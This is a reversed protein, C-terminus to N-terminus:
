VVLGFRSWWDPLLQQEDRKVNSHTWKGGSLQGLNGKTMELKGFQRVKKKQRQFCHLVGFCVLCVSVCHFWTKSKLFFSGRHRISCARFFSKSQIHASLSSAEVSDVPSSFNRWPNAARKTRKWEDCAMPQVAAAPYPWGGGWGCVLLLLLRNGDGLLESVFLKSMWRITNRGLFFLHLLIENKYRCTGCSKGNRNSKKTACLWFDNVIQRMWFSLTKIWCCCCSMIRLLLLLPFLFFIM